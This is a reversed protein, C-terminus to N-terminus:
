RHARDYVQVSAPETRRIFDAMGPVTFALKGYEPSYILGLQILQQRIATLGSAKKGLLNAIDSSKCADEGTSAMATMFKRGLQTARQWRSTYLGSDLERIAVSEGREVAEETIPSSDAENWAAEGYAQIFYPYGQSDAVLRDLAADTFSKGVSKAPEQFGAATDYRSLRGVERYTFLREAYSHCKSLIGPLDPLGAGVIYFPLNLSNAEQQLSILAGMLRASMEQFEDVFLILGSKAEQATRAVAELTQELQYIRQNASQNASQSDEQDFSVSAGLGFAKVSVTTIHELTKELQELLHNNTIHAAAKHIEESLKLCDHEEEDTAEIFIALLDQEQAMTYFKRLLVTKGVGRLGSYVVAQNSLGLTTRTILRDMLEIEHDRGILARPPRGAGPTFPNLIRLSGGSKGTEM